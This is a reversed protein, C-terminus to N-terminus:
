VPAGGRDYFHGAFHTCAPKTTTENATSRTAAPAICLLYNGSLLMGQSKTYVQIHEMLLHVEYQVPPGGHGDFRGASLPCKIMMLSKALTM